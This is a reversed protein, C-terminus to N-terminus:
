FIVDKAKQSCNQLSDIYMIKNIHATYLCDPFDITRCSPTGEPRHDRAWKLLAKQIGVESIGLQLWPFSSYSQHNHVNVSELRYGLICLKLKFNLPVKIHSIVCNIYLYLKMHHTRIHVCVKKLDSSTMHYLAETTVRHHALIPLYHQASLKCLLNVLEKEVGAEQLLILITIHKNPAHLINFM